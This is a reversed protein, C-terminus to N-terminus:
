LNSYLRAFHELSMKIGMELTIKNEVGLSEQKTTDGGRAFVGTPKDSMGVVKPEYGAIKAAITAFDIFSTFIGTSLNIAEADDIRDMTRLVGDVCDEIHIFDRMQRGNGWVSLHKAGKKEVARKCISPFPYTQDQDEGYGSFPRYCVSRLGNKQYALRALYEVTLKAWGYSLDPMGIDSKFDIMDECLLRYDSETQYKIPYAASSSFCITKAPRTRLAWQWYASDISLDDAIALPNNEIVLRGGVIAALHLSYDFDTDETQRFYDRCDMQHFHFTTYDRPDTSFWGKDPAVSGSLPVLSDVCHVEHGAQLFRTVFRRGVFGAGGTILIKKM